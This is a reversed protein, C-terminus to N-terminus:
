GNKEHQHQLLRLWKARMNNQKGNNQKKRQSDILWKILFILSTQVFLVPSSRIGLFIVMLNTISHSSHSLTPRLLSVSHYSTSCSCM